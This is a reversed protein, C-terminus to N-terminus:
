HVTLDHKMDTIDLIFGTISGMFKITSVFANARADVDRHQSAIAYAAIGSAVAAVDHLPVGDLLASIRAALENCDAQYQKETRKDRM